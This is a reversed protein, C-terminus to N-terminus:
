HFTQQFTPDTKLLNQSAPYNEIFWVTFATVNIKDSLLRQRRRQFEAKLDPMAFLAHIQESVGESNSFNFVLSYRQEQEILSGALLTNVYIAPTGLMACESAMTAGEGIFLTAHALVDHMQEPAIRIQYPELEPPLQGESTIFVTHSQALEQVLRIKESNSFGSQGVDHSANWSVFRVVVFPTGEPIGLLDGVQARPTFVAPHLYALEHYGDYWVQKEGYNKHFSTGTLIAQTFPKYLRVQEHNGTDEFAINPKRLVFSAFANYLSGHSLLLDPKFKWGTRISKLTYKLLGWAKGPKTKYHKGFNTFSFGEAELLKIEFEKERVTFHVAHGKAIMEHAFFKFLHVHGPHGIDILIRM